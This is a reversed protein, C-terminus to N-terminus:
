LLSESIDGFGLGLRSTKNMRELHRTLLQLLMPPQWHVEHRVNDPHQKKTHQFIWV